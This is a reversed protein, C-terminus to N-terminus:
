IGTSDLYKPDVWTGHSSIDTVRVIKSGDSEVILHKRSVDRLNPDMIIDAGADRGIINKGERLSTEQGKDDLFILRGRHVIGCVSKALRLSFTTNPELEVELTEGKPLRSFEAGEKTPAAFTTM